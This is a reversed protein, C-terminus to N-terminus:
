IAVILEQQLTQPHHYTKIGEKTEKNRGEQLIKTSEYQQIVISLLLFIAVYKSGM